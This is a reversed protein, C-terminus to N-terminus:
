EERNRRVREALYAMGVIFAAVIITLFWDTRNVYFRTIFWALIFGTIGRLALKAMPNM